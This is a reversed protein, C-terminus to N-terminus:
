TRMIAANQTKRTPLRPWELKDPAIVEAKEKGPFLFPIGITIKGTAVYETGRALVTQYGVCHVAEGFPTHEDNKDM